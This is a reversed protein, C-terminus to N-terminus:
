ITGFLKDGADGLGPIIYKHDDLKSDISATYLTIDPHASELAQIGEPACVLTLVKIKKAGEKKLLHIAEIMSGATALMPDIVLSLRKDIHTCPKNFYVHAKATIKDRYIGIMSVKANPMVELAGDLMGLGARLIPVLNAKKGALEPANLQGQWTEIQCESLAADKMAEYCLM